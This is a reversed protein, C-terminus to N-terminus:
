SCVTSDM